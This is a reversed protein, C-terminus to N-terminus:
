CLEIDIVMHGLNIILFSIFLLNNKRERDKNKYRLADLLKGPFIPKVFIM